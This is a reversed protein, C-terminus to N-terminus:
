MWEGAELRLGVGGKRFWKWDWLVDRSEVPRMLDMGLRYQSDFALRCRDCDVACLIKVSYGNGGASRRVGIDCMDICREIHDLATQLFAESSTIPGNSSKKWDVDLTSVYM